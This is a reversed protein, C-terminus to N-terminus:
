KQEVDHVCCRLGSNSSSAIDKGARSFMRRLYARVGVPIRRRLPTMVYCGVVGILVLNIAKVLGLLSARQLCDFTRTTVQWGASAYGRYWLSSAITAYAVILEQRSAHLLEAESLEAAFKSMLANGEIQVTTSMSRTGQLAHSRALVLHQSLHVFRYRAALRFWLDYDQTTRLREDFLGVDEFAARPVLLTCGHLCNEVTIWYRFCEPEVGRMVVPIAQSPDNTFVAYDSYVISRGRDAASVSALLELEREIKDATYLDDHSLWSFYEGSMKSIALNLASAVGGNAKSFYRIRGGYSRAVRETAGEDSSGDNVVVIEINRYTQALASDIAEALFDSGNFVPIIISVKPRDTVENVAM